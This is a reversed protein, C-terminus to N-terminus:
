KFIEWNLTNRAKETYNNTYNELMQFQSISTHENKMAKLHPPEDKTNLFAKIESRVHFRLLKEVNHKRSYSYFIALLTFSGYLLM